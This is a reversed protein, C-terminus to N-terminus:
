SLDLPPAVREMTFVSPFDAPRALLHQAQAM